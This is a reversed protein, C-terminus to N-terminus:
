GVSNRWKRGNFFYFGLLYFIVVLIFSYTHKWHRFHYWGVWVAIPQIIYAGFIGLGIAKIIPNARPKYQLTFMAMVPIICFDWSFYPPIIPFCETPYSWLGLAVGITDMYYTLLLIIFGGYLLRATSEKKRWKIWVALSVITLAILLWWRWTFVITKIWVDLITVNAQHLLDSAKIVGPNKYRTL